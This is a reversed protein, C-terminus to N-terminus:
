HGTKEAAPAQTQVKKEDKQENLLAAPTNPHDALLQKWVKVADPYLGLKEFAHALIRYTDPHPRMTITPSLLAPVRAYAKRMFYFNAEPFAGDPEKPNDKRYRVYVVLAEDNQKVNELMWGLSTAYDYDTPDESNLFRLENIVAPYDGVKFWADGQESLRDEIRSWIADLRPDQKAKPEKENLRPPPPVNKRAGPPAALVATAVMAGVLVCALKRM